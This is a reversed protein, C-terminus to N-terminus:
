FIVQNTGIPTPKIVKPFPMAGKWSRHEFYLLCHLSNLIEFAFAIPLLLDDFLDVVLYSIEKVTLVVVM